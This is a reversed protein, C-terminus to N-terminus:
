FLKRSFIQFLHSIKLFFIKFTEFHQKGRSSRDSIPVYEVSCFYNEFTIRRSVPSALIAAIAAAAASSRTRAAIYTASDLVPLNGKSLTLVDAPFFNFRWM